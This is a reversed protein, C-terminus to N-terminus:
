LNFFDTSSQSPIVAAAHYCRPIKMNNGAKWVRDIFDYYEVTSVCKCEQIEGIRGGIVVLKGKFVSLSRGGECEKPNPMEEWSDKQPDYVESTKKGVVFIKNQFSVAGFWGDPNKMPTKSEWRDEEPDYCEVINLYHRNFGGLAYLKGNLEVLKLGTRKTQLPSVEQWQNTEISYKEVVDLRDTGDYGGAVYISGDLAAVGCAQRSYKMSCLTQFTQTKTDFVELTNLIEKGNHGGCLYVKDGFVAHDFHTREKPMPTSESWLGTSSDFMIVSSLVKQNRGGFVYILDNYPLMPSSQILAEVLLKLSKLSQKVITREAVVKRLFNLSLSTLPIKALIKPLKSRREIDDLEVWEVAFYFMDEQRSHHQFEKLIIKLDEFSFWSILDERIIDNSSNNIIFNKCKEQLTKLSNKVAMEFFKSVNEITMNTELFDETRKKLREDCFFNAAVCISPANQETLELEFTYIYNLIDEFVDPSVNEPEFNVMYKHQKKTKDNFMKTFYEMNSKMVIRHAPFIKNEIFFLVDCDENNKRLKNLNKGTNECFRESSM